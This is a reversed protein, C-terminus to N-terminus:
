QNFIKKTVIEAILSNGKTNFHGNCGQHYLSYFKSGVSKFIERGYDITVIGLENMSSMLDDYVFAESRAFHKMDDCTPFFGIIPKGGRNETAEAFSKMINQTINFANSIHDVDYYPAYRLSGKLKSKVHWHDFARVLNFSYPFRITQVGSKGDPIFFEEKLYIQPDDLFSAIEKTPPFPIKILEIEGNVLTFVPKFM